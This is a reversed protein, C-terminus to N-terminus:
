DSQSGIVERVPEDLPEKKEDTVIIVMKSDEVVDNDCASNDDLDLTM